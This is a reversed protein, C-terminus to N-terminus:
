NKILTKADIIIGNCVLAVTYFGSQYNSVDINTATSNLDLIYNNSYGSTGYSGLIMLYASNVDNLKYSINVNNTAPNPTIIELTSPKFNIEVETYDKFGDVTAIVELKYKKAVDASITLDKGTFILNGLTDYWNYIAPESIQSASITITENKDVIKNGGADAIFAPRIQKKIIYTEGGIIQGTVADKQIVHYAFHTKETLEETLFNFNINLTGIENANFAINDIIVNNGKVIKKKEDSTINLQEAIKGGRVWANYLVDDMKLTVEAENYIPKGTELDEKVLELFFTKPEDFPNGVAIIGNTKNTLLDVITINKWAINNNNQVNTYLNNTEIPQDNVAEIRALLCFHWQDSGAFSYDNPNPVMFPIQLITEQGAQLIPITLTGVEDGLKVNPLPSPSPSPFYNQGNWSAPWELSTGAKAWYFKLQETGTSTVCSKNIVRIYAYNPITPSYEPNQHSEIGDAQNRIWIDTSAWMYQTTNNPQLGVDDIGDRVMLDLTSSNLLQALQVARHANVKGYGLQLSKGPNFAQLNYNFGGIKDATSQLINKMQPVSLCSNVSKMLALVGAIIPTAASTGGMRGTYSTFNVGSSPLLEGDPPLVSSFLEGWSNYGYVPGPIDITWINFSEGSIQSNYASHSPACIELATGNPSYNAQNNNRDSAGVTILNPLNASGPFTILGNNGGIHNATNGAAFIVQKNNNLANNMASVIVPMLNPDGSGYGWSNSIIDAGNTNAFDIADAFVNAPVSGFPIKIPMIKCLPAIGTVGENNDQTAGVIGACANGHNFGEITSVTPSPDNVDNTGDYAFAFNSGNLRVQRSNPLDPHNSTVGEDIIAVIVSPSGKTISWAEPADIDADITTTKGDNAGQGTNHLYWQQNFYPDNPFYDLKQVNAIFNPTCFEVQGSLYINKSVQLADGTTKYMEYSLATKILTLNNSSILTSKDSTSTGIKFKLLIERTYNLEQGDYTLYTPTLYYPENYSSLNATNLVIYRKDSLKIGPLNNPNMTNSIGLGNSFEVLNKDSIKTLNIKNGNTTYYFDNTQANVNLVGLILCVFFPINYKNKM